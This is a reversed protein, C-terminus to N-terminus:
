LYADLEIAADLFENYVDDAWEMVSEDSNQVFVYESDSSVLGVVNYDTITLTFGPFGPEEYVYYVTGSSRMDELTRRTEDEELAEDMVDAAVVFECNLDGRIVQRSINESVPSRWPVLERIEDASQVLERYKRLPREQDTESEEFVDVSRFLDLNDFLMENTGMKLQRIFPSLHQVAFGKELFPLVLDAVIEGKETLEERNEDILLMEEFTSFAESVTQPECGAISALERNSTVGQTFHYFITAREPGPGPMISKKLELATEIEDRKM